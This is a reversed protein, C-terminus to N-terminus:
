FPYTNLSSQLDSQTHHSEDEFSRFLDTVMDDGLKWIYSDYVCSSSDELSSV